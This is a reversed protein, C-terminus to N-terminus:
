NGSIASWSGFTRRCVAHPCSARPGCISKPRALPFHLWLEGWPEVVALSVHSPIRNASLFVLEWEKGQTFRHKRKRACLNSKTAAFKREGESESARKDRATSRASSAVVVLVSYRGCSWFKITEVRAVQQWSEKIVTGVLVLM